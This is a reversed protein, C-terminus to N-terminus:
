FYKIAIVHFFIICINYVFVCMWINTHTQIYIYIYTHIHTHIYIYIYIYIHVCINLKDPWLLRKYEKVFAGCTLITTQPQHHQHTNRLVHIVKLGLTTSQIHQCQGYLQVMVWIKWAEAVVELSLHFLNQWSSWVFLAKPNSTTSGQLASRVM